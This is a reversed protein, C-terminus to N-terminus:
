IIGELLNSVRKSKLEVDNINNVTMVKNIINVIYIYQFSLLIM